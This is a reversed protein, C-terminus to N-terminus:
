FKTSISLMHIDADDFVTEKDRYAKHCYAYNIGVRECITFGTGLTLGDNKMGARITWWDLIGQSVGYSWRNIDVDFNQGNMDEGEIEGTRYDIAVLTKEFPKWSAGIAEYHIKYDFDKRITPGGTLAPKLEGFLTDIIFIFEAGITLNDLLKYQAGIQTSGIQSDADGYILRSKLVPHYLDIKANEYPYAGMGISLKENIPIGLHLGITSAEFQADVGLRTLGKGRSETYMGMLRAHSNFFFPMTVDGRTLNINPGYSPNVHGATFMLDYGEVFGLAAPNMSSIDDLGVYAGGMGLNAATPTLGLALEDRLVGAFEQGQCVSVLPFSLIALLSVVLLIKHRAM